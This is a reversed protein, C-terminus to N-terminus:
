RALLKNLWLGMRKGAQLLRENAVQRAMSRYAKTIEFPQPSDPYVKETALAHSEELWTDVEGTPLPLDAYRTQLTKALALLREGRLWPPGPLDDWFRHLNSEPLRPNEPDSIKFGNGGADSRGNNMQAAAHLPQHADAILHLLWTLAESRDADSQTNDALLISLRKIQRDLQGEKAAQRAAGLPWDLYHWDKGLSDNGVLRPSPYPVSRKIDDAWTAAEAFLEAEASLRLPTNELALPAANLKREWQSVAAHQRLLRSTETRAALSMHEWAIIASLRHGAANWALAVPAPLALAVACLGNLLSIRASFSMTQNHVGGCTISQAASFTKAKLNQRGVTVVRRNGLIGAATAGLLFFRPM